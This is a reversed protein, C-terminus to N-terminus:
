SHPIPSIYLSILYSVETGLLEAKHKSPRMNSQQGRHCSDDYSINKM